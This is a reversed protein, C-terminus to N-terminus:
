KQLPISVVENNYYVSLIYKGSALSQIDNLNFLNVGNNIVVAQQKVVNGNLTRLVIAGKSTAALTTVVKIQLQEVFPNPYANVTLNAADKDTRVMVTKSYAYSGDNNVAKIRYYVNRVNANAFVNIDTTKYSNSGNAIVRDITNYQTGNFSREIQYHNLSVENAITWQLLANSGQKLGTVDLFTVPLSIGDLAATFLGGGNTAGITITNLLDDVGSAAGNYNTWVNPTSSQAGKILLEDSSFHGLWSDRYTYNFLYGNTGSPAAVDYYFYAFASANIGTGKEGSYQRISFTAPVNAGWIISAVTDVGVVFKQTTNAIPTAPFAIANDPAVTPTVEFAGNDPVGATIFAPRGVGNIDTNAFGLQTGRGNINWINPDATNPALNTTSTYSPRAFHSNFDVFTGRWDILTAFTTPSTPTTRAAFTAGTTFYTNYDFIPINNTNSVFLVRGGGSNTFVNNRIETFSAASYTFSGAYAGTATSTIDVTNHAVTYYNAASLALGFINGSPATVRIVNNMLRANEAPGSTDSTIVRLGFGSTTIAPYDLNLRNGMITNPGYTASIDIGYVTNAVSTTNVMNVTNSSVNINRFFNVFLGWAQANNITNNTVTVATGANAKSTGGKIYLGYSGNNSINNTVVVNQAGTADIFVNALATSSSTSTSVVGNFVCNQITIDSAGNNAVIMRGNTANSAKTFTLNRVTVFKTGNFNFTFNSAGGYNLVVDAANGSASQITISNSASSQAFSGLSLSDSYTGNAINIVVAGAIGCGFARNADAISAFNNGGTPLTSNITYTGAALPQNVNVFVPTTYAINGSCNVACRYWKSATANLAYLANDSATSVDTYTGNQTDASQWTYTQGVGFSNGNLNFSVNTGSCVDVSSVTITGPTPPTTCGPATFEFAGPDPTNSRTAGTFDTPVLGATARNDIDASRPLYNDSSVDVFQPNTQWANADQGTATRWDALTTRAASNFYGVANITGQNNAIFYVNRNGTFTATSSSVYFGYEAGTGARGVFFINNSVNVGNAGTLYYFAYSAATATSVTDNLVITNHYYNNFDSSSTYIGYHAGNGNVNHILNNSIVNPLSASAGDSGTMYIGYFTSTSTLAGGFPNYVRNANIRLEQIGAATYIGYYTTNSVARNGRTIDNGEVVAGITNSLYVGYVYQHWLKNNLIRNGFSLQSSSGAVSVSYYGGLVTNNIITNSDCGHGSGTPSATTGSLIIGNYLTTSTQASDVVITNRSITNNDADNTIWIGWGAQSTGRGNALINLSDITVYDAGNLTVTAPSVTNSATHAITNGNGLFRITNTASTNPISNLVLQENYPGSNPTVTFTVPGAIGCKVALAADTFSTYNTGSTPQASNITYTGAALPQNVSILQPATFVTNGNCTVAARYYGTQTVAITYGPLSSDSTVNSYTGNITTSFQWRYVQGTGVSNGSLGFTVDSNPCVNVTDSAVVNGATPPTTCGSVNFEYAGMDPTTTSRVTSDIDVLVGVPTGRNNLSANLPRYNFTQPDTFAPLINASNDDYVTRAKWDDLTAMTNTSAGNYGFQANTGLIINNYDSAFASTSDSLYIAFQNGTTNRDLEIINNKFENSVTNATTRFFGYTVGTANVSNDKIVITNHYFYAFDSSTNYIGYWGASAGGGVFNYILNNSIVNPTTNTGDAGTLYIGYISSTSTSGSPNPSHIKNRTITNGKSGTGLYIGYYTTLSSTPRTARQIENGEIIAGMLYSAYIGYTYNNTFTNKRIIIRQLLNNDGGTGGNVAVGASGGDFTSNIITISDCSNASSTTLSTTSGSIVIGALSTTSSVANNFVVNIGDYIHNNADNQLVIGWAYQTTTAASSTINLNNVRVWDTGDFRLIWRDASTSSNFSLTAGNGNITITNTSSTGFIAPVTLQENYPGSGAAVNFVVPGNIGCRIFNFADAFSTFNSGSTPQTSNITFTGNVLAAVQVEVPTSNASNSGCSVVCRYFGSQTPTVALQSSTQSSGVNTYTGNATTSFQWQYSLGNALTAGTLSLNVLTGNCIVGTVSANATGATPTGSCATGATYGIRLLPRRDDITNISNSTSSLTGSGSTTISTLGVGYIRNPVTNWLWTFSTTTPNGSTGNVQHEVSIELSGGTYVFNTTLPFDIVNPTTVPPVLFSTNSYVQTAGNILNTWSETANAFETTTSTKMFIKIDMSRLSRGTDAKQWGLNTIISGPAIGASALEAETYLYSYRSFNYSSTASSRYIPGANNAPTGATGTNITVFSQSLLTTATCAVLCVM